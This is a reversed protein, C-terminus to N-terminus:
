SVTTLETFLSGDQVYSKGTRLAIEAKSLESGLYAAHDLKKVAGLEIVKRYVSEATKGKIVKLPKNMMLAAFHIVVIYGQKRDLVIKFMGETDMEIQGCNEAVNVVQVEAELNQDYPEERNRKDKLV